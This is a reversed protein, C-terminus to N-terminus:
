GSCGDKYIYPSIRMGVRGQLLMSVSLYKSSRSISEERQKWSVGEGPPEQIELHQLEGASLARGEERCLRPLELGMDTFAKWMDTRLNSDGARLDKRFQQMWNSEKM